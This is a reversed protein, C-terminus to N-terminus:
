APLLAVKAGNRSTTTIKYVQIVEQVPDRNETEKFTQLMKVITYGVEM